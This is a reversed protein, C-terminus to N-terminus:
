LRRVKVAMDGVIEASRRDGLTQGLRKTRRRDQGAERPEQDIGIAAEVVGREDHLDGVTEDHRTIGAEAGLLDFGPDLAIVLRVVLRDLSGGLRGDSQSLRRDDDRDVAEGLGQLAHNAGPLDAHQPVLVRPQREWEKGGQPGDGADFDAVVNGIGPLELPIREVPVARRSPQRMGQDLDPLIQDKSGFPLGFPRHPQSV